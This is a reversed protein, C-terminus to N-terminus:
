KRKAPKAEKIASIIVSCAQKIEKEKMILPPAIRMATPCFLFWDTIIGKALCKEIVKKCLEENQFEVALMLGKGRIEKIAPHKLL